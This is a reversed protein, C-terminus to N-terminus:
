STGLHRYSAASSAPASITPSVRAFGPSHRVRRLQRLRRERFRYRAERRRRERTRGRAHAPPQLRASTQLAAFAILPGLENKGGGINPGLLGGFDDAALACKRTIRRAGYNIFAKTLALKSNKISQGAKSDLLSKGVFGRVAPAKAFEIVPRGAALAPGIDDKPKSRHEIGDVKMITISPDQHDAMLDDNEAEAINELFQVFRLDERDVLLRVDHIAPDAFIAELGIFM